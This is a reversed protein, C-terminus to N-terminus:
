GSSLAGALESRSAIELKRYASSLHVEVTKPTVFLTQAVERNTLGEAALEAVRRESPTLSEVGTLQLRRPRAGTAALETRAREELTGAGIRHALDLGERLPDRSDARRNTRRLLAGLEVLAKAHELRAPSGALLEVAERLHEEAEDGPGVLALTRLTVGVMRPAGWRRARELAMRALEVAEDGRDAAHLVLAAYPQWPMFAPNRHGLADSMDRVAWLDRLASDLERREYRLRGRVLLFLLFQGSRPPQEPLGSHLLAREAGALDGRELAIWGAFAAHYPLALQLEALTPVLAVDEDAMALNGDHLRALSRFLACGGALVNDGRRLAEVYAKDYLDITADTRGAVTFTYGLSYLARSGTSSLYGSALAPEAYELALARDDGVRAEAYSLIARLLNAGFGDGLEQMRAAALEAEALEVDDPDWWAAGILEAALAQRLEPDDVVRERGARLIEISEASRNGRQLARGLELAIRAADNDDAALEYAQRLHVIAAINDILREALGLARVVGPLEDAAPPEALARQLFAVAVDSAGRQLARDAAGRLTEVVFPDASPEVQELHVAVQEPEARADALVDAARRHMAAREPGPVADYVAARVVPHTFELVTGARLIEARALAAAAHTATELDLGALAAAHRAETHGGLVAVARALAGADPSVRSLRLSVVRAVPEPGVESVRSAATAVPEVGESRLADLLAELFLPNGGSAELCASTFEPDPDTGFLSQALAAASDAGLAGPRVVVAEVDALLEALLAPDRAQDPPRTAVLVLLPLGELRRQLHALFRLSPADAWHLDDVALATPRGMAINAVLWYLGHLIAFSVGTPSDEDTELEGSGFLRAASAAPGELLAERREAGATALVPEFLQRVIGFAFDHELEGGRASLVTLGAAEAASRGEVVLRTKGIGARGEIAVLRGAGAAAADVSAEIAALETERELLRPGSRPAPASRRGLPPFESSLGEAVAQYVREPRDLGSLRAEGLDRLAVDAPLDHEVIAASTRSLLIQGGHGADGLRAAEHVALGVYGDDGVVAEGTHLGIRVRVDGDAPWPEAALARQTAVAAALATGASRFVVFFADGQRDIETGGHQGVAARLLENHRSLLTGYGDRGLRDLLRTSGEIDSFFFTVTGTPLSHTGAM